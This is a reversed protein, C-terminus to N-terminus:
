KQWEFYIVALFLLKAQTFRVLDNIVIIVNRNDKHNDQQNNRVNQKKTAMFIEILKSIIITKCATELIDIEIKIHTKRKQKRRYRRLKKKRSELKIYKWYALSYFSM